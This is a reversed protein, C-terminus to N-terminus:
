CWGGGVIELSEKSGPKCPHGWCAQRLALNTREKESPFTRLQQSGTPRRCFALFSAFTPLASITAQKFWNSYSKTAGFSQKRVSASVANGPGKDAVRRVVAHQM